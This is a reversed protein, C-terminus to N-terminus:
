DVQLKPITTYNYWHGTTLKNTGPVLQRSPGDLKEKLSAMRRAMALSAQTV